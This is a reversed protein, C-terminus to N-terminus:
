KPEKTITQRVSDPMPTGHVRKGRPEYEHSMHLSTVPLFCIACDTPEISRVHKVAPASSLIRKWPGDEHIRAPTKSAPDLAVYVLQLAVDREPMNQCKGLFTMLSPVPWSPRLANIAQAIREASTRTLM